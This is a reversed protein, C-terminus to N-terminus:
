ITNKSTNKSYILLSQKWPKQSIDMNGQMFNNRNNKLLIKIQYNLNYVLFIKDKLSSKVFMNWYILFLNPIGVFLKQAKEVANGLFARPSIIIEM